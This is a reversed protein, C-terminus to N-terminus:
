GTLADIVSLFPTGVSGLSSLANQELIIHEEYPLCSPLIIELYLRLSAGKPVISDDEFLFSINTFTGIMEIAFLFAFM